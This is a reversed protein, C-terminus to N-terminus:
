LKLGRQELGTVKEIFTRMHDGYLLSRVKSIQEKPSRKLDKTQLFQYLDNNKESYNEAMLELKLQELFNDDFFNRLNIHPYPANKGYEVAFEKTSELTNYPKNLLKLLQEPEYTPLPAPAPAKKKKGIGRPKM